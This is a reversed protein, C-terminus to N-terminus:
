GGGHGASEASVGQEIGGGNPADTGDGGPDSVRVHQGHFHKEQNKPVVGKDVAVLADSKDNGNEKEFEIARSHSGALSISGLREATM